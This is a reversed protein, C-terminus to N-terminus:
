PNSRGPSAILAAGLIALLGGTIYVLLAVGVRDIDISFFVAWMGLSAIIVGLITKM